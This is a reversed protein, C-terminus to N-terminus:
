KKHNGYKAFLPDQKMAQIVKERDAPVDISYTHFTSEVLKIRYGHELIRMMDVSEVIELPTQPLSPFKLLFERRYPMICVQKYRDFTKM